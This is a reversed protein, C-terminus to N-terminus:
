RAIAAAHRQGLNCLVAMHQCRAAIHAGFFHLVVVVGKGVLHLLEGLLQTLLHGLASLQIRQDPALQSPQPIFESIKFKWPSTSTMPLVWEVSATCAALATLMLKVKRLQNM